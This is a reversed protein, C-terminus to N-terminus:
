VCITTDTKSDRAIQAMFRTKGKGTKGSVLYTAHKRILGNRYYLKQKRIAFFIYILFFIFAVNYFEGIGIFANEVIM